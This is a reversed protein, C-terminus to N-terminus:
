LSVVCCGLCIGVCGWGILIGFIHGNTLETLGFYSLLRLTFYYGAGVVLLSTSLFLMPKVLKAGVVAIFLGFLIL